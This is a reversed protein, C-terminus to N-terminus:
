PVAEAAGQRAGLLDQRLVQGQPDQRTAPGSAARRRLRHRAQRVAAGAPRRRDLDRLRGQLRQPRPRERRRHRTRRQPRHRGPRPCPPPPGAISLPAQDAGRDMLLNATATLWGLQNGSYVVRKTMGADGRDERHRAARAPADITTNLVAMANELADLHEPMESPDTETLVDVDRAVIFGLRSASSAPSSPSARAAAPSTRSASPAERAPRASSGCPRTTAAPASSTPPSRRPRRPVSTPTPSSSRSTASRNTTCARRVLRRHRPRQGLAPGQRTRSARPRGPRRGRAHHGQRHRDLVRDHRDDATRDHRTRHRRPGDVQARGQRAAQRQQQQAAQRSVPDAGADRRRRRGLQHPRRPRQRLARRAGLTGQRPHQRRHHPQRRHRRRAPVAVLSMQHVYRQVMEKPANNKDIRVQIREDPNLKHYDFDEVYEPEVHLTAQILSTVDSLNVAEDFTGNFTEVAM